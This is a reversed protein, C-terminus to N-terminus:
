PSIWHRSLERKLSAIERTQQAIICHLSQIEASLRDIEAQAIKRGTHFAQSPTMNDVEPIGTVASM